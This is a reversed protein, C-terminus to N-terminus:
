IIISTCYVTLLLSPVHPILRM